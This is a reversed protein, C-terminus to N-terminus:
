QLEVSSDLAVSVNALSYIFTYTFKDCSKMNTANSMSFNVEVSKPQSQILNLEFLRKMLVMVQHSFINVYFKDKEINFRNM